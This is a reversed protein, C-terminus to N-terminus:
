LYGLWWDSRRAKVAAFWRCFPYMAVVIGIWVAYAVWLPYGFDPPFLKAPGGMSPLPHFLFALSAAGYRAFALAAAVVHIAWFHAVYYFLPVRGIIVLPHAARVERRDLWALALLAPGMTMMLFQLSPPYKTARLFSLLTTVASDQAAWPQPDGYVNLARVIVFGAILALGAGVMIRRRRLPEMVLVPGFCYGAAMVAIWPLVPYGIVFPTGGLFFVGPQHLVNWVPALAGFQAAPIGDLTNDFLLVGASFVVLARYPLHVLAALAIMSVGLATLVLLLVPYRLTLSFNMALRMVTLELVILWLGRTWLFRSLRAKSGDRQLRLYAGAGASFMFGPACVHTIWRTFFLAPTTRALDEPSFSMAGAHIFDRVHDLAMVVMILGRLADLATLRPAPPPTSSM